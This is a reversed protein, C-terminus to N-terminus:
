HRVRYVALTPELERIRRILLEMRDKDEVRVTLKIIVTSDERSRAEIGNMDMELQVILQALEAVYGSVNMAEITLSADFTTRNIKNWEM